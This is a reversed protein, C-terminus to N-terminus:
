THGRLCMLRHLDDAHPLQGAVRRNGGALIWTGTGSARGSRIDAPIHCALAPPWHGACLCFVPIKRYEPGANSLALIHNDFSVTAHIAGVAIPSCRVSITLSPDAAATYTFVECAACCSGGDALTCHWRARSASYCAPLRRVPVPEGPLRISDRVDAVLGGWPDEDDAEFRCLWGEGDSSDSSVEDVRDPQNDPDHM